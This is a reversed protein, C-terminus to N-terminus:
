RKGKKVRLVRYKRKVTYSEVIEPREIALRKQDLHSGNQRNWSGAQIGGYMLVANEESSIV